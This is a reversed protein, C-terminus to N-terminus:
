ELDFINGLIKSVIFDLVMCIVFAIMISAFVLGVVWGGGIEGDENLEAKSRAM